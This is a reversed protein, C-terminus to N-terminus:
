RRDYSYGAKRYSFEWNRIREPELDSADEVKFRGDAVAKQIAQQIRDEDGSLLDKPPVEVTAEVEGKVPVNLVRVKM